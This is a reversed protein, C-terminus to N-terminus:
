ALGGDFGYRHLGAGNQRLWDREAEFSPCIRRVVEWFRESHNLEVLHAVEHAVVYDLVSAPAMALRWSFMLNGTTTCSGWRSRPDRMTIQGAERGVRGAYREVAAACAARATEKLWAAVQIGARDAPGPVVLAGNAVQSRAGPKVLLTLMQGAVPIVAGEMVVQRSSAGLRGRLWAEHDTLFATALRLSVTSPVTLTPVPSSQVVRLVMRRARPNRRLKVEIAPDGIRISETM